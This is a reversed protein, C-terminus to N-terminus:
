TQSTSSINEEDKEFTTM